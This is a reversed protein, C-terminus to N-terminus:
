RKRSKLSKLEDQILQSRPSNAGLAKIAREFDAIAKEDEDQLLFSRARYYYGDGLRDLKGYVISLRYPPRDWLPALNGANQYAGAASRLDNQKEFLEGLYLYTLAEKPEQTLARDFAARALDYDGTQTYLRGLDRDIGPPKPNLAAAEELNKRAEQWMGKSFYVIGLLQYPESSKPSESLAKKQESIIKDAERRELRLLTHIKNIPDVAPNIVPPTKMSRIILEANAVREQTLPHDLLYPPVDGIPNLNQDQLMLKQFSVMAHPDYGAETMYKLGLTDAEMELQRTYAIQRTVAIGQGLVAAAQAGSAGSRAALVAGLLGLVSIPDIGSMRAMHRKAVHTTEHAMVAALEDTSRVRDLLGAYIYISGGPVAFANLVPEDIVFYRYDFTQPGVVTLIRRGMADVYREVEPDSVFKLQKRAERRFERSIRADEDEPPPGMAPLSPLSTSASSSCSTIAASVLLLWACLTLWRRGARAKRNM